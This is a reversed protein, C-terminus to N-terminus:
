HGVQMGQYMGGDDEIWRLISADDRLGCMVHAETSCMVHQHLRGTVEHLELEPDMVMHHLISGQIPKLIHNLLYTYIHIYIHFCINEM